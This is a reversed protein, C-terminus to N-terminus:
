LMLFFLYIYVFFVIWTLRKLNPIIDWNVGLVIIDRNPSVTQPEGGNAM